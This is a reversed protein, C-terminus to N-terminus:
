SREKAGSELEAVIEAAEHDGPDLAVVTRMAALAEAAQGMEAYTQSLNFWADGDDAKAAVVARFDEVAEALRGLRRLANARNFRASVHGPDHRLADDYAVLAEELRGIRMREVGLNNHAKAWTPDLRSARELHAIAQETEGRLTALEALVFDCEADEGLIELARRAARAADETKGAWSLTKALNKLALGHDRPDMAALHAQEAATLDAARTQPDADLHGAGHMAGVLARALLRHGEITPHVHDLFWAEGAARNADGAEARLLAPLDVAPVDHRRAAERVAEVIPSLARLPCVDEDRARVFEAHAADGQGLARLSRALGYRAHAHRPSRALAAEFGARAAAADGHYLAAEARDLAEDFAGLESGALGTDIESKFPSCDSLNDAPVVFSIRAGAGEATAVMRDLNDSFREIIRRRLADDRRYADLGTSSELQADVEAPLAGEAAAPRTAASGSGIQAALRQVGAHVRSRSLVVEAKRLWAPRDRMAGYTREELFENHGTYVVFDDPAERVLQEMLAAVRYSAYSIGGANVVQWDFEPAVVPLQVRLWGCFSTSDFYPHGYTTSGGLCFVRRTRPGKEAAFRQDNFFARKNTATRRYRVGDEFEDVFLPIEGAFGVYPDSRTLVPEVGAALLTLEVLLWISVLPVLAFAIQKVNQM